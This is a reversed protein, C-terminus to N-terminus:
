GGSRAQRVTAIVQLMRGLVEDISLGTSDIVVADDAQMLPAHERVSDAEDRAEVERITQALDVEHGKEKLERYRRRGREQPTALLFFKVEADPFVVTGIDRGELVVGGAAALRRQLAVMATRVAKLASVRSTLLSIEPTRIQASVDEGNLIVREGDAGVHFNIKLGAALAGIAAEDGFDVQQRAAALAVCRYMAGTDLNLYCLRRALLKSLTSKGAGSPGDIAIILEDPM